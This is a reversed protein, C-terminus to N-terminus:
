FIFIVLIKGLQVATSSRNIPTTRSTTRQYLDHSYLPLAPSTSSSSPSPLVNQEDTNPVSHASDNEIVVALSISRIKLLHTVYSL